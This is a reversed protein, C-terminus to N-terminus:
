YVVAILDSFCISKSFSDSLFNKVEKKANDQERSQVTWDAPAPTVVFQVGSRSTVGLSM